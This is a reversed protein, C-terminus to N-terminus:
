RFVLGIHSETTSLRGSKKVSIHILRHIERDEIGRLEQFSLLELLRCQKRHEGAALARM